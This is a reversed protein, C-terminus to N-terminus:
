DAQYALAERQAADLLQEVRERGARTFTILTRRGDEGDANRNIMGAKLLRDIWRLATSAPTCSAICLNKIPTSRGEATAIFLELLMDWAPEGFIGGLLDDRRRRMRYVHRAYAVQRALRAEARNVPM